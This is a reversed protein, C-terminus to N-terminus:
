SCFNARPCHIIYNYASARSLFTLNCLLVILCLRCVKSIHVGLNRHIGSCKICILVGLNLSAWDPEPASCDACKDNGSVRRLVDITKESKTDFEQHHLSRSTNFYNGYGLNKHKQEGLASQYGDSSDRLSSSDSASCNDGIGKPSSSVCQYACKTIM